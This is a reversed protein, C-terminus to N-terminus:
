ATKRREEDTWTLLFERFRIRWELWRGSRSDFGNIIWLLRGDAEIIPREPEYIEELGQPFRDPIREFHKKDDNWLDVTSREVSMMTLNAPRIDLFTGSSNAPHQPSLTAVDLDLVIEASRDEIGLINCEHLIIETHKESTTPM